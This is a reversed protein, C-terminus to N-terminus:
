CGKAEGYFSQGCNQWTVGTRKEGKRKIEVKWEGAREGYGKVKQSLNIGAIIWSSISYKNIAVPFNSLNKILNEHPWEILFEFVGVVFIWKSDIPWFSCRHPNKPIGTLSRLHSKLYVRWISVKVQCMIIIPMDCTAEDDAYSLCM